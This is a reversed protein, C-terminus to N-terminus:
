NADLWEKVVDLHCALPKCFCGVTKNKLSLIAAKFINDTKIKNLFDIKFMEICKERGLYVPHPNGLWGKNPYNTNNIHANNGRGGYIQYGDKVHVAKM